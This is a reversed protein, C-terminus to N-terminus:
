AASPEFSRWSIAIIIVLAVNALPAGATLATYAQYQYATYGFILDNFNQTILGFIGVLMGMIAGWRKMHWLGYGAVIDMIGIAMILLPLLIGFAAFGGLSSTSSPPFLVIGLILIVIVGFIIFALSAATITIPRPREVNKTEMLRSVM